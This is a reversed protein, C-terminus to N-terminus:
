DTQSSQSSKIKMFGDKTIQNKVGRMVGPRSMKKKPFITKINEIDSVIWSIIGKSDSIFFIEQIYTINNDTLSTLTLTSTSSTNICKNECFYVEILKM